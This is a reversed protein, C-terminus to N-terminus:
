VCLTVQYRAFCYDSPALRISSIPKPSRAVTMCKITGTSNDAPTIVNKVSTITETQPTTMKESATTVSSWVTATISTGNLCLSLAIPSDEIDSARSKLGNQRKVVANQPKYKRM